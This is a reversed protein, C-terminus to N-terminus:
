EPESLTVEFLRFEPDDNTYKNTSQVWDKIEAITTTNDFLKEVSGMEWHDETYQKSQRFKVLFKKEIISKDEM